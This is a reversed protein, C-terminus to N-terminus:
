QALVLKLNFYSIDVDSKLDLRCITIARNKENLLVNWWWFLSWTRLCFREHFSTLLLELSFEGSYRLCLPVLCENKLVLRSYRGKWNQRNYRLNRWNQALMQEITRQSIIDKLKGILHLKTWKFNNLALTESKRSDTSLRSNKFEKM